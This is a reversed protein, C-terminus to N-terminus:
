LMVPDPAWATLPLFGHHGCEGFVTLPSGGSLAALRWPGARRLFRPDLPLASEGEADAIQWGQADEGAPLPVVDALVVPWAEQWPDDRLADGYAALAAHVGVGDPVRGPAPEGHDPGLAVRLPAAAPYYGLEADVATGPELRLEFPRGPASFALHLAMRRSREGRLWIRRSAVRGERAERRGLVLWRDRLTSADPGHLVEASDTTLGARTRVTEALPRPLTAVARIGEDLLHTLACEELLRSPWHPDSGPIAALGRVREALGPAQADVMRAATEEWAGYGPRDATALGSELLDALHRELETAGSTM